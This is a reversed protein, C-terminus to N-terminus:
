EGAEIVRPVLYLGEQTVPASRQLRERQDTETIEDPRLRQREELPSAMPEVGTTDVASIADILTIIRGLDAQVRTGEADDVRLRALRALARIDKETPTM